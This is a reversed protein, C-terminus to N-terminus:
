FILQEIGDNIKQKGEKGHADALKQQSDKGFFKYANDVPVVAPNREM